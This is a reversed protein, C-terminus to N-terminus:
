LSSTWCALLSAFLSSSFSLVKGEHHFTGSPEYNYTFSALSPQHLRIINVSLIFVQKSDFVCWFRSAFSVSRVPVVPSVGSSWLSSPSPPPRAPSMLLTLWSPSSSSAPIVLGSLFSSVALDNLALKSSHFLFLLIDCRFLSSRLRGRVRQRRRSSCRQLIAVMVIFNLALLPAM